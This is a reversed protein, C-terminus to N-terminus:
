LPRGVNTPDWTDNLSVIGKPMDYHNELEEKTLTQNKMKVIPNAM